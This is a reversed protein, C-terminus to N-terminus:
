RECASRVSGRQSKCARTDLVLTTDSSTELVTEDDLAEEEDPVGDLVTAEEETADEDDTTSDLEETGDELAVDEEDEEDELATVEPTWVDVLAAPLMTVTVADATLPASDAADEAEEEDPALELPPPPAREVPAIM